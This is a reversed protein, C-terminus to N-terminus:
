LLSVSDNEGGDKNERKRLESAVSEFFISYINIFNDVSFLVNRNVEETDDKFFDLITDPEIVQCLVCAFMGASMVADMHSIDLKKLHERMRDEYDSTLKIRMISSMSMIDGKLGGFPRKTKIWNLRKM